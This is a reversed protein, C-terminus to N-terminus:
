YGGNYREEVEYVYVMETNIKFVEGCLWCEMEHDGETFFVKTQKCGGQYQQEEECYPCVIDKNVM